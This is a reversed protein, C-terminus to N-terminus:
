YIIYVLISTIKPVASLFYSRKVLEPMNVHDMDFLSILLNDWYM